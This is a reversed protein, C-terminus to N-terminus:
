DAMHTPGYYDRVDFNTLAKRRQTLKEAEAYLQQQEERKSNALHINEQLFQDLYVQKPYQFIARETKGKGSTYMRALQFAVIESAAFIAQQKPDEPSGTGNGLERSLCSILDNQDETGWIDVKVAAMDIRHDFPGM